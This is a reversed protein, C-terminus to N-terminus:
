KILTLRGSRSVGDATVVCFYIGSGIDRGSDARGDWAIAHLGTEQTSRELKRVERGLLDYITVDVSAEDGLIYRITAGANFPNPYSPLLEFSAPRGPEDDIGLVTEEAMRQLFAATDSPLGATYALGVPSQRFFEAYFVCASLYSGKPNPHYNDSVNWLDLTTITRMARAWARGAPMLRSHLMGALMEYAATMTDQMHFYDVFPVSYHGNLDRQGGGRWGWTLFLATQCGQARILSDLFIASPYMSGYRYFDIVPYVSNEQLVVYDWGGRRIRALSTPNTSHGELTHGPPTNSDVAVPWGGSESLLAFMHPLNNFYTHSNGLFLV